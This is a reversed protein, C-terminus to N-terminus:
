GELIDALRFTLSSKSIFDIGIKNFEGVLAKKYVSYFVMIKLNNKIAFNFDEFYDIINKDCSDLDIVLKNWDEYNVDTLFEDISNFFTVGLGSFFSVHRIKNKFNSDTSFVAIM